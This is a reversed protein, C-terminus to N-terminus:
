ALPNEASPKRGRKVPPEGDDQSAVPEFWTATEGDPVEFVDGEHRLFGYFGDATARVLMTMGKM